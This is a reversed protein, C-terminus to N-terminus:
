LETILNAIYRQIVTADMVTVEKDKDTDAALLQVDSLTKMSALHLQILTADLVTVDSDM